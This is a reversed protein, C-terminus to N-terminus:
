NIIQLSENTQLMYGQTYYFEIISVHFVNFFSLHHSELSRELIKM